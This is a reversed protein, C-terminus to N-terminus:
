DGEYIEYLQEIDPIENLCPGCWSASRIILSITKDNSADDGYYDSFSFDVDSSNDVNPGHCFDLNFYPLFGSRSSDNIDCCILTEENCGLSDCTNNGELLGDIIEKVHDFEVNNGTEVYRGREDIIYYSPYADNVLPVLANMVNSYEGEGIIYDGLAIDPYETQYLNGWDSCSYPQGPDDLIEIIKVNLYECGGDDITADHNYNTAETDTCGFVNIIDVLMVIDLVNITGDENLDGCPIDDVYGGNLILEILYMIDDEDVNGDGNADGIIGDCTLSPRGMTRKKKEVGKIIKKCNNANVFNTLERKNPANLKIFNNLNDSDCKNVILNINKFAEGIMNEETSPVQLYSPPKIITVLIVIAVIGVIALIGYSFEKEITIM